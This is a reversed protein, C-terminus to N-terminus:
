ADSRGATRQMAQNSRKPRRWRIRTLALSVVVSATFFSFWLGLLRGVTWGQKVTDPENMDRHNVIHPVTTVSRVDFSHVWQGPELYGPIAEDVCDYLDTAVYQWVVANIVTTIIFAVLFKAIM